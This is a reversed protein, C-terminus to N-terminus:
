GLLNNKLKQYEPGDVRYKYVILMEKIEETNAARIAHDTVEVRGDQLLLSVVKKHGRASAWQIAWNDDVTPDVRGDQLLLKVIITNGYYSASRIARNNQDAPNVREDRLLMEVINAHGCACATSIAWNNNISPDVGNMLLEKVRELHGVQCAEIIDM